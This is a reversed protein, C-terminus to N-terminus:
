NQCAAMKPGSSAYEEPTDILGNKRALEDAMGQMIYVEVADAISAKFNDITQQVDKGEVYPQANEMTSIMVPLDHQLRKIFQDVTDRNAMYHRYEHEHVTNFRCGGRKFDSPIVIKTRFMMSLEVEEVYVCYYVGYKDYKKVDLKYGSVLGAAGEAYGLTEMESSNWVKQMGNKKLWSEKMKASERTHNIELSSIKLEYVPEPLEAQVVIKTAFPKIDGCGAAQAASPLALVFIGIALISHFIGM